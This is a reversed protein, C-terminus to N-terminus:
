GGVISRIEKVEGVKDEVAGLLNQLTDFIGELAKREPESRDRRELIEDIKAKVMDKIAEVAEDVLARVQERVMEDVTKSLSSLGREFLRTSLARVEEDLEQLVREIPVFVDNELEGAFTEGASRAADMAANLRTTFEQAAQKAQQHVAQNAGHAEVWQQDVHNMRNRLDSLVGHLESNLSGVADGALKGGDDMAKAQQDIAQGIVASVSHTLQVVEGRVDRAMADLDRSLDLVAAQAAHAWNTAQHVTGAVEGDLEDLTAHVMQEFEQTANRIQEVLDAVSAAQAVLREFEAAFAEGVEAADSVIAM